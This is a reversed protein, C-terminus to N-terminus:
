LPAGSKPRGVHLHRLYWWEFFRKAAHLYRSEWAIMRRPTRYVLIGKDLTDVICVLEVKFTATVPRGDLEAVLNKVAAVAQLDAMHAQKPMWDPGPFSGSDGVVYTREFGEVRCHVDGRILGGASLPLGSGQAWEPGTMGPMFLILDAAFEGGETVVKGPEFRLPKHGLETRIGHKAMEALLGDVPKEGLRQGPRKAPNFFVLEFRERKGQQRLWTDIGFLLEFMPGGRVASPENPNAGFGVAITGGAMSVLRERMQEAPAIGECITLAHEIGPLKKLFRGGSAIILADNRVEGQDTVVVRGGERLGTVRGAVFHIDHQEFFPELDFRLDDGARLGTPIWILSPSYVFEASPAILTIRVDRRLKRLARAATIAGFGAGILTIDTM